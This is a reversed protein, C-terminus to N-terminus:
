IIVRLRGRVIVRVRGRVIVRVRARAIVRARGRVVGGVGVMPRLELPARGRNGRFVRSNAVAPSRAPGAM